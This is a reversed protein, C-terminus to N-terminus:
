ATSDYPEDIFSVGVFLKSMQSHACLQSLFHQRWIFNEKTRSKFRRLDIQNQLFTWVFAVFRKKKVKGNFTDYFNHLVSTM